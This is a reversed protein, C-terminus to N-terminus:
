RRGVSGGRETVLGVLVAVVTGPNPAVAGLTITQDSVDRGRRQYGAAKRRAALTQFASEDEASWPQAALTSLAPAATAPAPPGYVFAAAAENSAPAPFAVAGEGRGDGPGPFCSELADCGSPM